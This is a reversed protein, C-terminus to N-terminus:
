LAPGRVQLHISDPNSTGAQVAQQVDPNATDIKSQQQQADAQAQQVALSALQDPTSEDAVGGGVGQQLHWTEEVQSATGDQLGDGSKYVNLAPSQQQQQQPHQQQHLQVLEQQQLQAHEQQAQAQPPELRQSDTGAQHQQSDLRLPQSPFSSEPLSDQTIALENLIPSAEEGVDAGPSPSSLLRPREFQLLACAGM